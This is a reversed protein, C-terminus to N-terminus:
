LSTTNSKLQFVHGVISLVLVCCSLLAATVHSNWLQANNSFKALHYNGEQQQGSAVNGDAMMVAASLDPPVESLVASMARTESGLMSWVGVSLGTRIEQTINDYCSLFKFILDQEPTDFTQCTRITVDLFEALRSRRYMALSNSLKFFIKKPPFPTHLAASHRSLLHRFLHFQSYRRKVQHITLIIRLCSFLLPSLPIIIYSQM